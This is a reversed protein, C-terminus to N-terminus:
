FPLTSLGFKSWDRLLPAYRDLIDQSLNVHSCVPPNISVFKGWAETALLVIHTSDQLSM